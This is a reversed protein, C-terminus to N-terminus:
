DSFGYGQKGPSPFGGAALHQVQNVIITSAQHNMYNTIKKKDNILKGILSQLNWFNPFM